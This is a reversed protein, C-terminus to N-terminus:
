LVGAAKLVGYLAGLTASIIASLKGAISWSLSGDELARTRQGLQAVSVELLETRRIHEELIVHQKAQLEAIQHLKANIGDLRAEERITHVSLADIFEKM